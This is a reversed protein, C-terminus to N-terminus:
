AFSVDCVLRVMALSRQGIEHNVCEIHCEMKYPRHCQITLSEANPSWESAACENLSLDMMNTPTLKSM